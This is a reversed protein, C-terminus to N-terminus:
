AIWRLARLFDLEHPLVDQPVVVRMVNQRCAMEQGADWDHIGVVLLGIREGANRRDMLAKCYALSKRKAYGM